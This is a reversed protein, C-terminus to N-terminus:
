FKFDALAKSNTTISAVRDPVKALEGSAENLCATVAPVKRANLGTFDNKVTTALPAGQKALGVSEESAGALGQPAQTANSMAANLNDLASQVKDVVKPNSDDGPKVSFFHKSGPDAAISINAKAKLADKLKGMITPLDKVDDGLKTTEGVAELSANAADRASTPVHSIAYDAQDLRGTLNQTRSLFDDYKAMGTPKYSFSAKALDQAKPGAGDKKAGSSACGATGIALGLLVGMFLIGSERKMM